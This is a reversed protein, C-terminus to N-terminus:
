GNKTVRDYAQLNKLLAELDRLAIM